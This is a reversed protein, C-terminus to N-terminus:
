SKGLMVYGPAVTKPTGVATCTPCAVSVPLDRLAMTLCGIGAIVVLVTVVSARATKQGDSYKMGMALIVKFVVGLALYIWAM